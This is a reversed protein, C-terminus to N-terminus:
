TSGGTCNVTFLYLTRAGSVAEEGTIGEDSPNLIKGAEQLVTESGADGAEETGAAPDAAAADEAAAGEATAEEYEQQYAELHRALLTAYDKERADKLWNLSKPGQKGTVNKYSVYNTAASIFITATPRFWNALALLIGALFYPQCGPSDDSCARVFVYAAAICLFTSPIESSLMTSQGWNNPYLAFLLLAIVAVRSGFLRHAILSLLLAIAAKMACLLLLVPWQSGTLWLSLELLNIIGINWIFPEQAYTTITPYPQGESLCRRALEAYGAGDNTPTFGFILLVFLLWAFYAATLLYLTNAAVPHHSDQM